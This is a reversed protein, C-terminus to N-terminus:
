PGKDENWGLLFVLGVLWGFLMGQLRICLANALQLITSTTDHTCCLVFSYTGSELAGCTNDTLRHM